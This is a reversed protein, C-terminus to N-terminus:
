VAHLFEDAEKRYRDYHDGRIKTMEGTMVMKGINM